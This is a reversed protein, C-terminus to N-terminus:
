ERFGKSVEYKYEVVGPIPLGFPSVVGLRKSMRTKERNILRGKRPEAARAKSAEAEKLASERRSAAEILCPLGSATLPPFFPPPLPLPPPASVQPQSIQPPRLSSTTPDSTTPDLLSGRNLSQEAGDGDGDGVAETEDVGLRTNQSREKRDTDTKAVKKRGSADGKKEEVGDLKENENKARSRDGLASLSPRAKSTGASTSAGMSSRKRKGTSGVVPDRLAAVRAPLVTPEPTLSPVRSASTSGSPSSFRISSNPTGDTPLHHHHHHHHNVGAGAKHKRNEPPLLEEYRKMVEEGEKLLRERLWEEGEKGVKSRGSEWGDEDRALITAVISAWAPKSLNRLLDIRSRLKYREFQLKEKERLRQRREFAEHKRHLQIYHADSTDEEPQDNKKKLKQEYRVVLDFLCVEDHMRRLRKVPSVIGKGKGIGGTRTATGTGSGVFPGNELEERAEQEDDEGPAVMVWGPTEIMEDKGLMNEGKVDVLADKGTGEMKLTVMETSAPDIRRSPTLTIPPGGSSQEQGSSTSSSTPVFVPPPNLMELPLTTLLIPLRDPPITVPEGWRQLWDVVMEEVDRMGELGGGAARRIRAPLVRREIPKGKYKPDTSTPTTTPASTSAPAPNANPTSPTRKPQIPPKTKPMSKRPPIAKTAAATTITTAAAATATITTSSSVKARPKSESVGFVTSQPIAASPQGSTPAPKYKTSTVEAGGSPLDVLNEVEQEVAGDSGQGAAQQGDVNVHEVPWDLRKPREGDPRKEKEEEKGRVRASRREGTRVTNKSLPLVEVTVQRKVVTGSRSTSGSTSRPSNGGTGEDVDQIVLSDPVLSSGQEEGYYRGDGDGDKDGNRNRHRTIGTGLQVDHQTSSNATNM